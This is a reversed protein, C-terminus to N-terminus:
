RGGSEKGARVVAGFGDFVAQQGPDEHSTMEPHWQVGVLWAAGAAPEVAEVLGDGSWAVAVLGEALRDVGQHHHSTCRLVERGCVAALRTNTAVKVEHVVSADSTPHGHLDMGSLDPLHQHLTGGLAVNLVQMGRCVALTPVGAAVAARALDLEVEDRVSDLGYVSPHHEEAGYHGPNVDGGGALLLGDFPALTDAPDAGPDPPLLVARVGARHLSAVYGEPIAFGGRAWDVVRGAHLHYTPIAVLPAARGM